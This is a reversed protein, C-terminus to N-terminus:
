VRAHGVNKGQICRNALSIHLAYKDRLEQFEPMARLVKSMDQLTNVDTSKFKVVPCM